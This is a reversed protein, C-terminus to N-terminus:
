VIMYKVFREGWIELVWRASNRARVINNGINGISYKVDGPSNQLLWNTSGLGKVKEVRTGWGEEERAVM